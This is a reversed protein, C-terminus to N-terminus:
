LREFEWRHPPRYIGVDRIFSQIEFSCLQSQYDYPTGDKAHIAVDLLYIGGTLDIQDFYIRVNGKGTLPDVTIGEIYTNTGYCYVGDNRFIGVGFVPDSIPRHAMYSIQIKMKDGTKYLSCPEGKGNFLEVATIEAERSGWRRLSEKGTALGNGNAGPGQFNGNILREKQAVHELYADIMERVNGKGRFVGAELWIVEDCYKEIASLDHTVMVITKGESRFRNIKANCKNQFAADGVALIEDILFIDPNVTVAIAFALRMYMGSSYTKVPNDIFEELEAFRVIEDFKKYIEKRSLGLIMGNIFINERGTFEPHFGAGLEILASLRGTVKVKGQSPRQLGAIIKLLTSKGSGNSGIIGLTKGKPVEFSINQLAWFIEAPQLIRQGKLLNILWSKFTLAQRYRKRLKFSKSM